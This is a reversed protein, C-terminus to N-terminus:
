SNNVDQQYEANNVVKLNHVTMEHKYCDKSINILYSFFIM